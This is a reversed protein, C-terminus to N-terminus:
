LSELGLVQSVRASPKAFISCVFAITSQSGASSRFSTRLISLRTKSGHQM